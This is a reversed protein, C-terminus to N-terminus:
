DNFKSLGPPLPSNMGQAGESIGFMARPGPPHHMKSDTQIMFPM